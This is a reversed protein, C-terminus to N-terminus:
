QLIKQDPRWTCATTCTEHITVSDLWLGFEFEGLGELAVMVTEGIWRAINESTPYVPIADNLHHHDLRDVVHEDLLKRLRSYDFLMGMQPGARHLADGGLTVDALWSHGHLRQCKGDHHELQHSAEFRITKTLTWM